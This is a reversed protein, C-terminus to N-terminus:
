AYKAMLASTEIFAVIFERFADLPAGPEIDDLDFDDLLLGLDMANMGLDALLGETQQRTSAAQQQDRRNRGPKAPDPRTM